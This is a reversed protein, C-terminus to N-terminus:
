VIRLTKRHFERMDYRTRFEGCEATMCGGVANQRGFTFRRKKDVGAGADAVRYKGIRNMFGNKKESVGMQIVNDAKRKQRCQLLFAKFQCDASGDGGVAGADFVNHGSEKRRCEKGNTPVFEGSVNAEKIKLVFSLGNKVTSFNLRKFQRVGARSQAASQFDSIVGGCKTKVGFQFREGRIFGFFDAAKNFTRIQQNGVSRVGSFLIFVAATTETM